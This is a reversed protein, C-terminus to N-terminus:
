SDYRGDSADEQEDNIEGHNVGGQISGADPDWLDGPAAPDADFDLADDEPVPVDLAHEIDPIIRQLLRSERFMDRCRIRAEREIDRTVEAATIFASPITTEVKHLDAIDYVFSLQKGTHIFGLATSYGAAVIAAHCVGYLCSNAASIARNIPDAAKWDDRKYSRGNWDVGTSKSWAAYADRVRVGEKGRIQQLTLGEDLSEKFRMAYLERVVALRTERRTALKAQRLLNSANRTTGVGSAYFRVAEEGCWAVMCGNDALALIAAHTISTGPGLMLLSLAACPVPTTGLVDHVAISKEEQEIRCHEVYLFSNRDSVKPLAHLDRLRM